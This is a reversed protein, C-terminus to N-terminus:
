KIDLFVGFSISPNAYIIRGSIASTYNLSVGLKKTIYYAAEGGLSIYEINNAFISGQSNQANLSGNKLSKVSDLRGLLWLKKNLFNTGIELGSRFEDSFDQTRNNYGLYAKSYFETKGLKFPAGGNILLTQNFEGDGTQYSGDSGGSNNGTPLGFKLTGSLAFKSTNILGYSLGLDIDGISNLDEGVGITGGTTGSIVDNQYVRSFFPVYAIVDLKNTLGYEGYFNINFQGRTINPDIAGTDTYHQDSELYWASLKYYGKGKGKTWQSFAPKSCLCILFVLLTLQKSNM